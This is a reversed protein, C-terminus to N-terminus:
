IKLTKPQSEWILTLFRDRPVAKPKMQPFNPYKLLPIRLEFSENKFTSFIPEGVQTRRGKMCISVGMQDVFQEHEIEAVDKEELGPFEVILWIQSEVKRFEYGAGTFRPVLYSLKREPKASTKLLFTDSDPILMVKQSLSAELSEALAKGLCFNTCKDLINLKKKIELLGSSSDVALLDMVFHRVVPGKMSVQFEQDRMVWDVSSAEKMKQSLDKMDIREKPLNHVVMLCKDPSNANLLRLITEIRNQEECSWYDVVLIVLQSMECIFRLILEHALRLGDQCDECSVPLCSDLGYELITFDETSVVAIDSSFGYKGTGIHMGFLSNILTTKGIQKRGLCTVVATKQTSQEIPKVRWGESHLTYANSLKLYSRPKEGDTGNRCKSLFEQLEAIKKAQIDILIKMQDIIDQDQQPDAVWDEYQKLHDSGQM